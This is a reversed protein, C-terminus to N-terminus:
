EKGFLAAIRVRDIWDHVDSVSIWDKRDGDEDYGRFKPLALHLRFELLEDQVADLKAIKDRNRAELQKIYNM